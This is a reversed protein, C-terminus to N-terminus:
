ERVAYPQIVFKCLNQISKTEGELLAIICTPNSKHRLVTPNCKILYIGNDVNPAHDLELYWDETEEYAIFNPLGQIFSVQIDQGDTSLRLATVKFLTLSRRILSLPFNDAVIIKNDQQSLVFNPNKYLDFIPRDPLHLPVGYKQLFASINRTVDELMGPTILDRPLQGAILQQLQTQFQLILSSANV